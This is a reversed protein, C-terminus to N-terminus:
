KPLNESAVDKVFSLDGYIIRYTQSGQPRYWCIATDADGLEVGNGVYHWDNEPKMMMVFQIGRTMKTMHQMKEEKTREIESIKGAKKMEMGAKMFEAPELSPPFFHGETNTAWWRLLNILDQCNVESRDIKLPERPTYGDPPTLSFIADDLEVDFKFDKAVIHTNPANPFQGEMRILDGTQVDIWCIADIGHEIVHFGQVIHGDMEEKPLVENAREPFTRMDEFFDQIQANEIDMETYQKESHNISISKKRTLDNISVVLGGAMVTRKLGPEKRINEIRMVQEGIKVETTFMVTRAQRIQQVVEAFAVSTGDISGGFHNVSIFVAFIVIAAVALKTIRSKMIIRWINLKLNNNTKSNEFVKLVDNLVARDAEPNTDMRANKLLKEIPRM